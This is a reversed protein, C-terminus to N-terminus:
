KIQINQKNYREFSNLFIIDNVTGPSLRSRKKTVINGALSFEREVAASTAPVAFVRKAIRALRPYSSYNHKWFQLPNYEQDYASSNASVDSQKSKDIAFKLYNDIELQYIAATTTPLDCQEDEEEYYHQM